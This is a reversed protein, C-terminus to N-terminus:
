RTRSVRRQCREFRWRRRWLQLSSEAAFWVEAIMCKWFTTNNYRSAAGSLGMHEASYIYLWEVTWCGGRKRGKPKLLAAALLARDRRVARLGGCQLEVCECLVLIPERFWSVFLSCGLPKLVLLTQIDARIERLNHYDLYANWASLSFSPPYYLWLVVKCMNSHKCM